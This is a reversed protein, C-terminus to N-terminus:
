VVVKNVGLRATTMRKAVATVDGDVRSKRLTAPIRLIGGICRIRAIRRTGVTRPRGIDASRAETTRWIPAAVVVSVAGGGTPECGLIGNSRSFRESYGEVQVVGDVM